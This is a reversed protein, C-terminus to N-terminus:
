SMPECPRVKEGSDAEDVDYGNSRLLMSLTARMSRQDDVVLIKGLSGDGNEGAEESM